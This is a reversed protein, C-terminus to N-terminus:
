LTTGRVPSLKALRMFLKVDCAPVSRMIWKLFPSLTVKCLTCFLPNCALSKWRQDGGVALSVAPKALGCRLSM